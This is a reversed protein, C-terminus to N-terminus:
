KTFAFLHNFHGQSPNTLFDPSFGQNETDHGKAKNGPANPDAMYFNGNSDVARIVMLHSESTFYGNMVSIIVLGGQRIVSAAKNLDTGLDQYQLHYDNAAAPWLTWSTGGINYTGYKSALTAPTESTGTLTQVVMALSTIGCGTACITGGAGYPDNGWQSDCQYYHAMNSLDYGNAGAQYGGSGVCQGSTTSGPTFSAAAAASAAAGSGTEAIGDLIKHMAAITLAAAQGYNSGPTYGNKMIELVTTSYRSGAPDLYTSAIYGTVPDISAAFSPFSVFGDVTPFGAIGTVGFSDHNIVNAPQSTTGLSEEKNAIGVIMAPNVNYKQGAAVFADGLGVFPSSPQTNAIFTNIRNVLDGPNAVDPFHPGMLPGTGTEGSIATCAEAADVNFYYAGEDLVQKQAASIAAVPQPLIILATTLAAASLSLFRKM